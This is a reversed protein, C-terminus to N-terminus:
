LVFWIDDEQGQQSEDPDNMALRVHAGSGEGSAPQMRDRSHAGRVSRHPTAELGGVAYRPETLVTLRVHRGAQKRSLVRGQDVQRGREGTPQSGLWLCAGGSCRPGLLPGGRIQTRAKDWLGAPPRGTPASAHAGPEKTHHGPVSKSYFTVSCHAQNPSTPVHANPKTVLM